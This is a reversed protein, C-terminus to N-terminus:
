IIGTSACLQSSLLGFVVYLIQLEMGYLQSKLALKQLYQSDPSLKLIKLKKINLGFLVMLSNNEFICNFAAMLNQCFHYM